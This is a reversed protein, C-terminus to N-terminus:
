LGVAALGVQGVGFLADVEVAQVAGFAAFFAGLSKEILEAGVKGGAATLSKMAATSGLPVQLRCRARGAAGADDPKGAVPYAQLQPRPRTPSVQRAPDLAPGKRM